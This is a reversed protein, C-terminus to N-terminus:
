DFRNEVEVEDIILSVSPYSFRHQIYFIYHQGKIASSRSYHFVGILENRYYVQLVNMGNEKFQDNVVQGEKFILISSCFEPNWTIAIDKRDISESVHVVLENPDFRKQILKWNHKFSDLFIIGLVAVLIVPAFLGLFLQGSRSEAFYLKSRDAM